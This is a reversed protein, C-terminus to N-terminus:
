LDGAQLKAPIASLARDFAHCDDLFRHVHMVADQMSTPNKHESVSAIFEDLRALLRKPETLAAEIREKDREACSTISANARERVKAAVEEPYYPDDVEKLAMHALAAEPDTIAEKPAREFLEHLKKSITPWNSFASAAAKPPELREGTWAAALEKM